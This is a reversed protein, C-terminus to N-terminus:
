KLQEKQLYSGIVSSVFNASRERKKSFFEKAKTVSSISPTWTMLYPPAM